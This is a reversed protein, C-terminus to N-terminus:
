FINEIKANNDFSIYIYIIFRKRKSFLIISIILRMNNSSHIEKITVTSNNACKM